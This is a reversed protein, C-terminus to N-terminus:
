LQGTHVCVVLAQGSFVEAVVVVSVVAGYVVDVVLPPFELKYDFCFLQDRNGFLNLRSHRLCFRELRMMMMMMM